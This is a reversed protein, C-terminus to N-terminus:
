KSLLELQKNKFELEKELAEIRAHLYNILEESRM